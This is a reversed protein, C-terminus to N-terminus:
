KISSSVSTWALWISQQFGCPWPPLIVTWVWQMVRSLSLSPSPICTQHVRTSRIWGKRQIEGEVKRGSSGKHRYRWCPGRVKERKHLSSVTLDTFMGVAQRPSGKLWRTKPLAMYVHTAWFKQSVQEQLYLGKRLLYNLFFLSLSHANVSISHTPQHSPFKSVIGQFM